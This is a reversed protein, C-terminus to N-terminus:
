QGMQFWDSYNPPISELACQFGAVLEQSADPGELALPAATLTLHAPNSEISFFGQRFVIEHSAKKFFVKNGSLLCDKGKGVLLMGTYNEQEGLLLFDHVPKVTAAQSVLSKMKAIFSARYNVLDASSQPHGSDLNEVGHFAFVDSLTSEKLQSLIGAHIYSDMLIYKELDPESFANESQNFLASVINLVSPTIKHWSPNHYSGPQGDYVTFFPYGAHTKSLENVAVYLDALRKANNKQVRGWDIQTQIKDCNARSIVSRMFAEALPVSGTYLEAYPFPGRIFDVPQLIQQLALDIIEANRARIEPTSM